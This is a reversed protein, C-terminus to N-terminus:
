KREIGKEDKKKTRGEKKQQIKIDFYIFLTRECVRAM